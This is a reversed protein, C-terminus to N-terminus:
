GYDFGLWRCRCRCLSVERERGRGRGRGQEQVRVRVRGVPQIGASGSHGGVGVGVRGIPPSVWSRSEWARVGAEYMEDVEELYRGKTEVVFAFVVVSGVM